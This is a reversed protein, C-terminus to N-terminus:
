HTHGEALQCDVANVVQMFVLYLLVSSSDNEDCEM